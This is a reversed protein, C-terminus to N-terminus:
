ALQRLDFIVAVLMLSLFLLTFFLGGKRINEVMEFFILGAIIFLLPFAIFILMPEILKYGTFDTAKRYFFTYGVNLLAAIFGCVFGGLLSRSLSTNKSMALHM